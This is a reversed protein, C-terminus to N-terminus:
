SVRYKEPRPHGYALEYITDSEPIRSLRLIYEMPDSLQNYDPDAGHGLAWEAAEKTQVKWLMDSLDTEPELTRLYDFVEDNWATHQSLMWRLPTREDHYADWKLWGHVQLVQWADVDNINMVDFDAATRKYAEMGMTLKRPEKHIERIFAFETTVNNLFIENLSRTTVAEGLDYIALKIYQRITPDIKRKRPM